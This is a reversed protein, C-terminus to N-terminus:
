QRITAPTKIPLEPLMRREGQIPFSIKEEGDVTVTYYVNNEPSYLNLDYAVYLCFEKLAYRGIRTKITIEDNGMIPGQEVKIDGFSTAYVCRMFGLKFNKIRSSRKLIFDRPFIDTKKYYYASFDFGLNRSELGTSLDYQMVGYDCIVSLTDSDFDPPFESHIIFEQEAEQHLTGTIYVMNLNQYYDEVDTIGESSYPFKGPKWMIGNKHAYYIGNLDARPFFSYGKRYPRIQAVVMTLFFILVVLIYRYKGKVNM